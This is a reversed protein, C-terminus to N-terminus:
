EKIKRIKKLKSKWSEISLKATEISLSKSKEVLKVKSRIDNKKLQIMM